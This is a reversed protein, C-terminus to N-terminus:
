LSDNHSGGDNNSSSGFFFLINTRLNRYYKM